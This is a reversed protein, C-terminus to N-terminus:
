ISASIDSKKVQASLARKYMDTQDHKEKLYQDRQMALSFRTSSISVNGLWVFAFRDILRPVCDDGM